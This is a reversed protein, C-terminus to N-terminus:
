EGAPKRSDPKETRRADDAAAEAENLATITGASSRQALTSVVRGAQVVDITGVVTLGAGYTKRASKLAASAGMAALEELSLDVARKSM